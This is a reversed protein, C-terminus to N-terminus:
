SPKVAKDRKSAESIAMHMFLDRVSNYKSTERRIALDYDDKPARERAEFESEWVTKAVSISSAFDSFLTPSLPKM